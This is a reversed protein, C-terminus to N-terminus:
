EVNGVKEGSLISEEFLDSNLFLKSSCFAFSSSVSLHPCAARSLARVAEFFAVDGGAVAM